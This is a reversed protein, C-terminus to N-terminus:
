SHCNIAMNDRPNATHEVWRCIEMLEARSHDVVAGNPLMNGIVASVAKVAVDGVVAGAIAGIVWVAAKGVAVTAAIGLVAARDENGSRSTLLATGPGHSVSSTRAATMLQVFPDYPDSLCVRGYPYILVEDQVPCIWTKSGACVQAKQECVSQISHIFSTYSENNKNM